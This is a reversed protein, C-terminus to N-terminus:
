FLYDSRRVRSPCTQLSLTVAAGIASEDISTISRHCDVVCCKGMADDNHEARSEV